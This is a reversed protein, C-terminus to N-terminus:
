EEEDYRVGPLKPLFKHAHHTYKGIPEWFWRWKAGTTNEEPRHIPNENDWGCLGCEFVMM